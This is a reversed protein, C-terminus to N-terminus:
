QCYYRFKPILLILELSIYIYIYIGELFDNENRHDNYGAVNVLKIVDINSYWHKNIDLIM